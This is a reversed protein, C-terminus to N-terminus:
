VLQAEKLWSCKRNNSSTIKNRNRKVYFEVSNTHSTQLRGRTRWEHMMFEYAMKSHHVNKVHWVVAMYSPQYTWWFCFSPNDHFLAISSTCTSKMIWFYLSLPSSILSSGARNISFCQGLQLFYLSFESLRFPSSCSTLTVKHIFCNVAM